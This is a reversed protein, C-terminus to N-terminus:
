TKARGILKQSKANQACRLPMYRGCLHLTSVVHSPTRRTGNSCFSQAFFSPAAQSAARRTHTTGAANRARRWSNAAHSACWWASGGLVCGSSKSFRALMV